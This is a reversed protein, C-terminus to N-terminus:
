RGAPLRNESYNGTASAEGCDRSEPVTLTRMRAAALEMALPLGELRHVLEAVAGANEADVTFGPRVAAARQEFLAVAPFRGIDRASRRYSRCGQPRRETTRLGTTM